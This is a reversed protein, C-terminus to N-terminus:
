PIIKYDKFRYEIYCKHSCYKRHNNGYAHFKKGCNLCIFDYYAKGKVMYPHSHWWQVRCKDSCFIKRKGKPTQSIVAGCNKCLNKNREVIQKGTGGLGNRYCYSKVADRSVNIKKAIKGCSFGQMRLEKVILKQQETM